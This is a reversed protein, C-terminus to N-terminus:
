RWYYFFRSYFYFGRKALKCSSESSSCFQITHTQVYHLFLSPALISCAYLLWSQHDTKATCTNPPKLSVKDFITLIDVLCTSSAYSSILKLAKYSQTTPNLLFAKPRLLTLALFFDRPHPWPMFINRPEYLHVFTGAQTFIHSGTIGRPGLIGAVAVTRLGLM